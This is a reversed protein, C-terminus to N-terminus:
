RLTLRTRLKKPFDRLTLLSSLDPNFEEESEKTDDTEEAEEMEASARAIEAEFRAEWDIDHLLPKDDTM